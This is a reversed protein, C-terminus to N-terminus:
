VDLVFKLMYGGKEIYIEMMHYTIAKVHQRQEHKDSNFKEGLIKASLNWEHEFYCINFVQFDTFLLGEADVRIIIEEIWLYLLNELDESKISFDESIHPDVKKPDTIVEMTALAAYEFAEELTSGNVSIYVDATHELFKHGM